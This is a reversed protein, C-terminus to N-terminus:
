DTTASLLHHALNMMLDVDGNAALYAIRWFLASKLFMSDGMKERTPHLWNVYITDSTFDVECLPAGAGGSRLSISFDRGLIYLSSTWMDANRNLRVVGEDLVLQYDTMMSDALELKYEGISGPLEIQYEAVHCLGNVSIDSRTFLRRLVRGYRSGVSLTTLTQSVDLFAKRRRKADQVIRSVSSEVSRHERLKELVQGLKGLQFTGEGVLYRRLTQFQKNEGYFGERGPMVASIADLGKTVIVEGMLQSLFPRYKVPLDNDVGLLSPKGIDVGRVRISIGRLEAPFVPEPFGLLYGQAVLGNSEIRLLHKIMASSGVLASDMDGLFRRRLKHVEGNPETVQIEFPLASIPTALAQLGLQELQQDSLEYSVPVSRSLNWLFRELGSASAVNRVRGRRQPSQLESQVFERLHLTVITYNRGLGASLAPEVEERSAVLRIDCFDHLSELNREDELSLLYNYDITAQLEIGHWDSTYRITLTQGKVKHEGEPLLEIAIGNHHYETAALEVDASRVAEVSVYPALCSALPGQIFSIPASEPLGTQPWEAVYESHTIKDTRSRIEVSRCYRAVALFGIGKRGIPQRGGATSNRRHQTSGGIRLYESQFELPTMGSGNDEVIITSSDPSFRVKVLTADADFANSVLEKFASAFSPYVGSFELLANPSVGGLPLATHTQSNTNM